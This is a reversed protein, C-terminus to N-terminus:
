EWCIRYIWHCRRLPKRKIRVCLLAYIWESILLCMNATPKQNMWCLIERTSQPVQLCHHLLCEEMICYRVVLRSHRTRKGNGNEAQLLTEEQSVIINLITHNTM